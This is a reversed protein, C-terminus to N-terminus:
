LPSSTLLNATCPSKIAIGPLTSWRMHQLKVTEVSTVSPPCALYTLSQNGYEEAEERGSVWSLWM